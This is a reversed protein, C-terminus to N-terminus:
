QQPHKKFLRDTADFFFRIFGAFREHATRQQSSTRPKCTEGPFSAKVIRRLEAHSAFRGLALAQLLVKGIATAEVPVAIYYRPEDARGQPNNM